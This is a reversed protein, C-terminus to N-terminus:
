RYAKRVTATRHDSGRLNITKSNQDEGNPSVRSCCFNCDLLVISRPASTSQRSPAGEKLNSVLGDVAPAVLASAHRLGLKRLHSCQLFYVTPQSMHDHRSVPPTAVRVCRLLEALEIGQCGSKSPQQFAVITLVGRCINENCDRM